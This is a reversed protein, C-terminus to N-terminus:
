CSAIWGTIAYEAVSVLCLRSITFWLTFKNLPCNHNMPSSKYVVTQCHLLETESSGQLRYTPLRERERETSKHRQRQM